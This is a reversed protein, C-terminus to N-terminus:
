GFFNPGIERINNSMLILDYLYASNRLFLERHLRSIQNCRSKIIKNLCEIYCVSCLLPTKMSLKYILRNFTFISFTAAAPQKETDSYGISHTGGDSINEYKWVSFKQDSHLLISFTTCSYLVDIKLWVCYPRWHTACNQIINAFPNEGSVWKM